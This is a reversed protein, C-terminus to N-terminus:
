ITVKIQSLITRAKALDKKGDGLEYILESALNRRRPMGYKFSVLLWDAKNKIQNLATFVGNEDTGEDWINASWEPQSNLFAIYFANAVNKADTETLTAKEKQTDIEEKLGVREKHEEAKREENWKQGTMTNFAAGVGSVAKYIAWGGVGIAGITAFQTILKTQQDLSNYTDLAQKGNKKAKQLTTGLM